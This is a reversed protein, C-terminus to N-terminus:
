LVSLVHKYEPLGVSYHKIIVYTFFNALAVTLYPTESLRSVDPTFLTAFDLFPLASACQPFPIGPNPVCLLM